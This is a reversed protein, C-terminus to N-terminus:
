YMLLKEEMKIDLFAAEDKVEIEQTVFGVFSFHLVLPPPIRTKLVFVGDNGSITGYLNDKVTIYVGVMPEGTGTDSVKGKFEYSQGSASNLVSVLFMLVIFAFYWKKNGSNM